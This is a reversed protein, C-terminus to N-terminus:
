VCKLTTCKLFAVPEPAELDGSEAAFSEPLQLKTLSAATANSLPVAQASVYM